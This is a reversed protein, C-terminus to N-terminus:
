RVVEFDVRRNMSKIGKAFQERKGRSETSLRSGDIGYVKVLHDKVADARRQGLKDNYSEGADIDTHGIIKLKLKENKKLM